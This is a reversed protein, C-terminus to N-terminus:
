LLIVVAEGNDMDPMTMGIPANIYTPDCVLYRTDNVIIYDGPINEDFAVASALHGPYYLLACELGLLDRVIRTFLIARDECDSYPYFLTEEPFFARERGWAEDDTKYEFATQVFNIIINAAEQQSKGKINEILTPYIRAKVDKSLPTNAYFSWHSYKNDRKYPRPYNKYFNILNRNAVVNCSAQPYRRSKLARPSTVDTNLRTEDIINMRVAAENPFEQDFIYLSEIESNDVM